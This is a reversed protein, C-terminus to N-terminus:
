GRGAFRPEWPCESGSENGDDDDDFCGVTLAVAGDPHVFLDVEDGPEIGEVTLTRGPQHLTIRM